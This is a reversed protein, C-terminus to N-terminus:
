AIPATNIAALAFHWAEKAIWASSYGTPVNGNPAHAANAANACLGSLAALFYAEIRIPGGHVREMAFEV